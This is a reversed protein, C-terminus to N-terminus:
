EAISWILKNDKEVLPIFTPSEPSPNPTHLTMWLQGNKDTFLSPHGGDLGGYMDPDFLLEELVWPGEITGTQSKSM